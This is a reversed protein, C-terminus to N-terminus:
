WIECRDKVRVMKDTESCGFAKFFEPMNAITGNLRFRALPHPDTNTQLLESQPRANTKWAQAFGLFFRQEATFGDIEASPPKGALSKQYALWAIKLGGLDAIAEGKVLKGKVHTGDDLTFESYQNEICATHQQFKGYDEPTWWRKFNGGADFQGGQDDFGHTLEHGIVAGICGYNLAPDAAPDFLPPQLIAAPFIIENRFPVYGANITQPPALWEDRDVPRGIKDLDRELSWHQVRQYNLAYPGRDIDLKSYDIWKDPYGVKEAIADLKALAQKRTPDSMWDLQQIRERLAAKLNAIIEKIQRRADPPFYRKVYVQGVAEGLRLSTAGAAREWLPQQEKAGTLARGNFDFNERDFAMGLTPASYNFVRWRLYTKWSAIPTDAIMANVEKFFNPQGINLVAINKLGCNGLYAEWDLNPTLAKREDASMPHYSSMPNRLEIRTASVRALRTEIEMVIKAGSEAAAADDGALAFVNAVHKVYQERISKSKDDDKTYYDRDPLSLGSQSVEAIVASSNKLDQTSGIGFPSDVNYTAFYAFVAQLSKGDTIEDIRKFWPALSTLGASNRTATDMVSYYYDGIKQDNTGKPAGSKQAAELITRLQELNRSRMVQPTGWSSADAPVPNKAIWGGNAFRYFDECPKVSRDLDSTDIGSTPRPKSQPWGAGM